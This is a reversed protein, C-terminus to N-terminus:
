TCGLFLHLFVFNLVSLLFAFIICCILLYVNFHIFICRKSMNHKYYYILIQSIQLLFLCETLLIIVFVLISKLFAFTFFVHKLACYFCFGRAFPLLFVLFNLQKVRVLVTVFTTIIAFNLFLFLWIKFFSEIFFLNSCFFKLNLIGGAVLGLVFTIFILFLLKRNNKFDYLIDCFLNHFFKLM